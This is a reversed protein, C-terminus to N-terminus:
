TLLSNPIMVLLTELTEVMKGPYGRAVANRTGEYDRLTTRWTKVRKDWGTNGCSFM